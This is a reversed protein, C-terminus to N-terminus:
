TAIEGALADVFYKPRYRVQAKSFGLEFANALRLLDHEHWHKGLMHFGIPLMASTKEHPAFGVPLTYAPMGLFNALFIYKMVEVTLGTDSEGNHKARVRLEPALISMTPTAIITLNHAQYLDRVYKMSWARVKDAALIEVASVSQGIGLTIAIAPEISNIRTSYTKDWQSAFESGIKIAHSMRMTQLHPIKIPVLTAGRSEFFQLVKRCQNSIAPISDNFWEEYIGIRVDSLDKTNQFGRISPNPPGDFGYQETFFHGPEAPSVLLYSLAADVATTTMPGCKIMTSDIHSDFPIRGYTTALGHLGSCSAPLRVSGGGDWGFAVPVIGSAVAVASGSSSGGSYHNEDYANVPGQFHANFGLPSVGGETMITVGFIIAGVNKLRTILIDDV